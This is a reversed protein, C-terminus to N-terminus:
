NPDLKEDEQFDVFCNLYFRDGNHKSLLKALLANPKIIGIYYCSSNNMFFIAMNIIM